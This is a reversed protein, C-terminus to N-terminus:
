VKGGKLPATKTHTRRPEFAGAVAGRAASHFLLEAFAAVVGNATVAADGCSDDVTAFDADPVAHRSLIVGVSTRTPRVRREAGSCHQSLKPEQRPIIQASPYAHDAGPPQDSRPVSAAPRPLM